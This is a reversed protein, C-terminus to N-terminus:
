GDQYKMFVKYLGPKNQELDSLKSFEGVTELDFFLLRTKPYPLM